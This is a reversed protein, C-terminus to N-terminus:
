ELYIGPRGARAAKAKDNPDYKNPDNTAYVVAEIDLWRKLYSPLRSYTELESPVVYIVAKELSM